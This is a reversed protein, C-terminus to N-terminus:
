FSHSMGASVARNGSGPDSANGATYSAGNRNDIRAYVAYLSTRKSLSYRYGLAV